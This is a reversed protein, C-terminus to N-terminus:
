KGHQGRQKLDRKLDEKELRGAELTIVNYAEVEWDTLGAGSFTYGLKSLMKKNFFDEVINRYITPVHEGGIWTM